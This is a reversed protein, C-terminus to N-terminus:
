KIFRISLYNTYIKRGCVTSSPSLGTRWFSALNEGYINTGSHAFNDNSAMNNAWNQASTEVTANRVLAPVRHLARLENHRKLMATRFATLCSSTLAVQM